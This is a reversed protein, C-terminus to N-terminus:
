QGALHQPRVYVAYGHVAVKAAERVDVFVPSRRLDGEKHIKVAAIEAELVPSLYPPATLPALPDLEVAADRM